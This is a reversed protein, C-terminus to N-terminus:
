CHSRTEMSLVDAQPDGWAVCAQLGEGGSLPNSFGSRAASCVSLLPQLVVDFSLWSCGRMSVGVALIQLSGEFRASGVWVPGKVEGSQIDELYTSSPSVKKWHTMM